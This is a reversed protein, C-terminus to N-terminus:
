IGKGSLAVKLPIIPFINVAEYRYNKVATNYFALASMFSDPFGFYRGSDEVALSIIEVMKLYSGGSAEYLKDLVRGLQEQFVSPSLNEGLYRYVLLAAVSLFDGFYEYDSINIEPPARYFSNESFSLNEM